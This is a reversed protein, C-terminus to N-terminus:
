GGDNRIVAVEYILNDNNLDIAPYWYMSATFNSPIIFVTVVMRTIKLILHLISIPLYPGAEVNQEIDDYSNM